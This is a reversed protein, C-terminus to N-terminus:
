QNGPPSKKRLQKWKQKLGTQPKEKELAWALPGEPAILDQIDAFPIVIPPNGMWAPGLENPRYELVIASETFSVYEPLVFRCRDFRLQCGELEASLRFRNRSYYAQEAIAIFRDTANPRLLHALTVPRGTRTDLNLFACEYAVLQDDFKNELDYRVSLLGNRNFLVTGRTLLQRPQNDTLPKDDTEDVYELAEEHWDTFTAQSFEEATPYYRGWAARAASDLAADLRADQGTKPVQFVVTGCPPTHCFPDSFTRSQVSVPVSGDPLLYSPRSNPEPDPNPTPQTCAATFLLLGAAILARCTQYHM